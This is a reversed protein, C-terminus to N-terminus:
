KIFFNLNIQEVVRTPNLTVDVAIQKAKKMYDDAYVKVSYDYLGRKNQIVKLFKNVESQIRSWTFQDNQEFVYFKSFEELARKIYLVLRSINLDQLASPRKQTTLQGWVTYGVNFKVIPNIQNLYFRDRDGILPSFRLEKITAITARNFGAAAYWLEAVNDTFPLINAMHYVPTIWIDKGTFSDYVKSYCEYLALYKTNYTHTSTRATMATDPSTNDGNDIIGVCDKRTTVLTYLGSSKVNTPYGGDMVITFYYNETDLVEDVFLSSDTTKSLTGNYAQSLIQDATVSDILGNVNFLAGSSGNQLNIAGNSFPESFDAGNAIATTLNDQNAKCKIYKSYNDLVDVIYMSEGSTDLKTYDFSVEFSSIIEYQPAGTEPNDESQRKYIDLVYVGVRNVNAHASINIQFNNYWEGRGIGYFMVASDVASLTTDIEPITNVSSTTSATINSTGDVGLSATDEATIYMNSFAADDPMCRIVYLSDSEKLFSSAVYPGQGYLKGVYNINPEGFDTYFDESNTFVLQNDPGQESIIPIFGITSPISRVYESLDIIKTFVGPSVNQAM